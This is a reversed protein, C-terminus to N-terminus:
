TSSQCFRQMHHRRSFEDTCLFEELPSINAPWPLPSSKPVRLYSWAVLQWDTIKATALLPFVELSEEQFYHETFHQHSFASFHQLEEHGEDRWGEWSGGPGGAEGGAGVGAQEGTWSLSLM